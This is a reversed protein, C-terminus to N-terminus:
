PVEPEIEHLGGEVNPEPEDAIYHPTRSDKVFDLVWKIAQEVPLDTLAYTGFGKGDGRDERVYIDKMHDVIHNCLDILDKSTPPPAKYGAYGIVFGIALNEAASRHQSSDYLLQAQEHFMKEHEDRM